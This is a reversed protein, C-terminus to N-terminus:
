MFIRGGGGGLTRQASAYQELRMIFVYSRFDVKKSNVVTYM